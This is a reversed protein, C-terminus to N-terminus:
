PGGREAMKTLIGYGMLPYCLVGTTFIIGKFLDEGFVEELKQQLSLKEGAAGKFVIAGNSGKGSKGSKGSKASRSRNKGPRAGAMMRPASSRASGRAKAPSRAAASSEEAAAEISQRKLEVYCYYVIAQVGAAAALRGVTGDPDSTATAAALTLIIEYVGYAILGAQQQARTSALPQVIGLLVWVVGFAQGAVPLEAFPVLGAAAPLANGTAFDVAHAIGAGAYCRGVLVLFDDLKTGSEPLETAVLASSRSVPVVTPRTIAPLKAVSAFAAASGFLLSVILSTFFRM